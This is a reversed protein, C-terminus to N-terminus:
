PQFVNKNHWELYERKPQFESENPVTALPQGDLRYYAKGNFWEEKIRPSVEVRLDPNVTVYGLDFLKHFDSRLLLGNSVHHPGHKAFPLIHAAELVPLTREGTIACKRRYADTVLVRFAGQGLRPKVLVADGYGAKVESVGGVAKAEHLDIRSQVESWLAAGEQESTDYHRGRVINGSWGVPDKIWIEDPWFFPEALVTCGIEPDRATPDPTLPRILKEFEEQTAAGNKSGFSEWAISIPLISFKIFYGGGAIHNNPRKLKFLFPSGPALTSFASRASPQWFNAEEPKAGRLFQFWTNHTVGVWYRM